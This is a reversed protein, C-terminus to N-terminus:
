CTTVPKFIYKTILQWNGGIDDMAFIFSQDDDEKQNESMYLRVVNYAAKRLLSANVKGKRFTSKDEGLAEDLIYHLSNEISWHDRKLKIM